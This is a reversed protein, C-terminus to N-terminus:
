RFFIRDVDEKSVAKHLRKSITKDPRKHNLLECKISSLKSAAVSFSRLGVSLLLPYFEEFSAVEGCLCVEKKHTKGSKVVLEILKVLSSHLIHYRKEILPNGRSAALTYQLLDNSGINVFDVNKILSDLLLAASPTEVMIGEKISKKFKKGEKKLSTKASVILKKFLDIDSMDSIMPYLVRLDGFVAARLIAKVQVLYIDYFFDLARVGRIGLDPNEQPPLNLYPPLKDPSIDLLRVTVPLGKAEELIHKYMNFQEEESPPTEKNLFLFETRLLGVGDYQLGRLLEIEGPTSINAKLKIRLGKQTKSPADKVSVCVAKRKQIDSIKNSYRDLTAQDPSVFVKGDFGDVIIKDGCKINVEVSVGFVVPVNYGRALITAHTTFGGEETVFSLVHEKPINLVMSTTLRKSVVIVPQREGVPCEFHGALNGFSVLLRNRVDRVDHSLESFHLESKEYTKVYEEFADSVAHEANVLKTNILDKMRELLVPDDLILVHASFIESARKDFLKEAARAMSGMTEKAKKIAEELRLIEGKTRDKEIVYHPIEEEVKEAYLCATGIVVGSSAVVGKLIKM